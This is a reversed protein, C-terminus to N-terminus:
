LHELFIIAKMHKSRTLLELTQLLIIKKLVMM